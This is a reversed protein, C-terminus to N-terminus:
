SLPGAHDAGEALVMRGDVEDEPLRGARPPARPLGQDPGRGGRPDPGQRLLGQGGRADRRGHRRPPRLLGAQCMGSMRPSTMPARAWCPPPSSGTSTAATSSTASCTGLGFQRDLAHGLVVLEIQSYDADIFVDRGPVFRGRITGAVGGSARRRRLNQLNFGSRTRGTEVLYGFRPYLRPRGMKTLYTSVLKEARYM